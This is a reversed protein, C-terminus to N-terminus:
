RPVFPEILYALIMTLIVWVLQLTGSAMGAVHHAYYNVPLRCAYELAAFFISMLLNYTLSAEHTFLSGYAACTYLVAPVTTIAIANATVNSFINPIYQLTADM